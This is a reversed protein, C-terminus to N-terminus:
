GEAADFDELAAKVYDRFRTYKNRPWETYLMQLLNQDMGDFAESMLEWYDRDFDSYGLSKEGCMPCYESTGVTTVPGLRQLRHISGCRKCNITLKNMSMHYISVEGRQRQWITDDALRKTHDICLSFFFRYERKNVKHPVGRYIFQAEEECFVKSETLIAVECHTDCRRESASAVIYPSRTFARGVPTSEHVKGFSFTSATILGRPNPTAWGM